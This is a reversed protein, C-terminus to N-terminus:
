WIGVTGVRYPIPLCAAQQSSHQVQAAGWEAGRGMVAEHVM